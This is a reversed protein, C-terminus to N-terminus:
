VVSKRDSFLRAIWKVSGTLATFVSWCVVIRFIIARAGWRDGLWGGPVELLLYGLVFASFIWSMRETARDRSLKTRAASDNELNQERLWQEDSQTLEGLRLDREIDGQARMICIRDLYTLFALSCLVALVWFRFRTPSPAHQTM